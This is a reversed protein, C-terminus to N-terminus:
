ASVVMCHVQALAGGRNAMGLYKATESTDLAVTCPRWPRVYSSLAAPPVVPTSSRWCMVMAPSTGAAGFGLGCIPGRVKYGLPHGGRLDVADVQVGWLRDQQTVGRGTREGGVGGCDSHRVSRNGWM